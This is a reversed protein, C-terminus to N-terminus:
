RLAALDQGQAAQFSPNEPKFHRLLFRLGLADSGCTCETPWHFIKSTLCMQVKPFLLLVGVLTGLRTWAPFSEAGEAGGGQGCETPATWGSVMEQLCLLCCVYGLLSMDRHAPAPCLLIPHFLWWQGRAGGAAGVGKGARCLAGGPCLERGFVSRSGGRHGGAAMGGPCSALVQAQHQRRRPHWQWRPQWLWGWGLSCHPWPSCKSHRRHLAPPASM